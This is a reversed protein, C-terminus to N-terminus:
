ASSARGVGGGGTSLVLGEPDISAITEATM